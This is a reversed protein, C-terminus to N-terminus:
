TMENQRAAVFRLAEDSDALELDPYNTLIEEGTLGSAVMGAVM